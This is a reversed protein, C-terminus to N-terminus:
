TPHHASIAHLFKRLFPPRHHRRHTPPAPDDGTSHPSPQGLPQSEPTHICLTGMLTILGDRMRSNWSAYGFAAAPRPRHNLKTSRFSQPLIWCSRRTNGAASATVTPLPLVTVTNLM